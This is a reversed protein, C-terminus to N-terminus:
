REIYCARERYRLNLEDLGCDECYDKGDIIYYHSADEIDAGCDCCKIEYRCKDIKTLNVFM